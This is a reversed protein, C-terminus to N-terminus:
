GDHKDYWAVVDFCPCPKDSNPLDRHGKTEADPYKETLYDLVHRLTEFQTITFNCDPEGFESMGGVLCIGVSVSNYGKAHAGIAEIDRGNELTGDRRIVLNYGVDSWGNGKPKPLTHWQRIEDVGIDQEPKTYSCHVLLLSTNKRQTVIKGKM